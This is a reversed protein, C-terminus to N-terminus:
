LPVWFSLSYLSGKGDHSEPAKATLSQPRISHEQQVIFTNVGQNGQGWFFTPVISQSRRQQVRLFFMNRRAKNYRLWSSVMTNLRKQLPAPFFPVPLPFLHYLNKKNSTSKKSPPSLPVLRFPWFIFWCKPFKCGLAINQPGKKGFRKKTGFDNSGTRESRWTHMALEASQLQSATAFFDRGNRYCHTM